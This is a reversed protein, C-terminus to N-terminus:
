TGTTPPSWDGIALAPVEDAWKHHTLDLSADSYTPHKADLLDGILRREDADTVQRARAARTDGGLRLIVAPDALANLYWDAPRPNGAVMYLVDGAIAFWIEIEHRRGTRRGTTTLYCCEEDVHQDLWSM